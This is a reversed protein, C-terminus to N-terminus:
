RVSQLMAIDVSMLSEKSEILSQLADSAFTYQAGLVIKGNEDHAAKIKDTLTSTSSLTGEASHNDFKVHFIRFRYKGDRVAIKISYHMKIASWDSTIGLYKWGSGVLMGAEMDDADMSFGDDEYHESLWMKLADFLQEKSNGESQVVEQIYYKRKDDKEFNDVYMQMTEDANALDASQSYTESVILTTTCFVTLIILHKM